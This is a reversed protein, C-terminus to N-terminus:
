DDNEKEKTLHELIAKVEVGLDQDNNKQYKLYKQKKVSETKWSYQKQFESRRDRYKKKSCM